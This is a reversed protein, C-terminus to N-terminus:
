AAKGECEPGLGISISSPVSLARGCRGCRGEHHVECESPVEAREIFKWAWAFAKASPATPLIRSKRGHAYNKKGFITGLFSFDTNNNPGTLVSVFHCNGDDSARVRFTFRVGTRKSVLTVMANGALLFRKAITGDQLSSPAENHSSLFDKYSERKTEQAEIVALQEETMETYTMM